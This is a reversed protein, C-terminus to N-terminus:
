RKMRKGGCRLNATQYYNNLFNSRAASDYIASKDDNENIFPKIAQPNYGNPSVTAITSNVINQGASSLGSILSDTDSDTWKYGTKAPTEVKTETGGEAKRRGGYSLFRNRFERDLEDSNAFAQTLNAANQLGTNREQTNRQLAFQKLQAKRQNYAGFIATGIGIAGGIAAGLWAKRRNNYYNKIM